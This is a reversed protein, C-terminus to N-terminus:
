KLRVKCIIHGKKCSYIPAKRPTELCVPCEMWELQEAKRKRDESAEQQKVSTALPKNEEEQDPTFHGSLALQTLIEEESLESM